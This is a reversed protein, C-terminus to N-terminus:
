ILILDTDQFLKMSRKCGDLVMGVFAKISTSWDRVSIDDFRCQLCSILISKKQHTGPRISEKGIYFLDLSEKNSLLQLTMECVQKEARFM